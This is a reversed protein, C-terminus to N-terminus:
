ALWRNLKLKMKRLLPKVAAASLAAAQPNKSGSAPEATIPGGFQRLTYGPRKAAFVSCISFGVSNLDPSYPLWDASFWFEAL